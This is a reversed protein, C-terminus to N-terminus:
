KFKRSYFFDNFIIMITIIKKFLLVYYVKISNYLIFYKKYIVFFEDYYLKSQYILFLIGIVGSLIYVSFVFVIQDNKFKEFSEEEFRILDDMKITIQGLVNEM